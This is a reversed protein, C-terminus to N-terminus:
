VKGGERGGGQLGKGQVVKVHVATCNRELPCWFCNSVKGRGRAVIRMGETSKM